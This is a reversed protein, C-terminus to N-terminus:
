LRASRQNGGSGAAALASLERRELVASCLQALEVFGKGLAGKRIEPFCLVAELRPEWLLMQSLIKADGVALAADIPAANDLLSESVPLLLKVCEIHGGSAAMKLAQSQNAQPDSVPLLLRVCEARGRSAALRLAYSEDAKPNSVALLLGVCEAHGGCAAMTLATLNSAQPDSAPILLEVCEVHGCDAALSLALSAAAKNMGTELLLKVCGAHGHHVAWRLAESRSAMTHASEALFASLKASDGCIAALSLKEAAEEEAGAESVADDDKVFEEELNIGNYPM